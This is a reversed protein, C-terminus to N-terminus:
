NQRSSTGTAVLQEHAGDASGPGRLAASRDRRGRILHPLGFGLLILGFVALLGPIVQGVIEHDARKASMDAAAALQGSISAGTAAYETKATAGLSFTQGAPSKVVVSRVSTVKLDVVVGTAPDITVTPTSSDSYTAAFSAGSSGNGSLGIPLRGGGLAAIQELSLTPPLGAGAVSSSLPGGSYEALPVGGATTSGSLRLPGSGTVLGTLVVTDDRRDVFVGM